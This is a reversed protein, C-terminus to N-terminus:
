CKRCNIKQFKRKQFVATKCQFRGIMKEKGSSGGEQWNFWCL